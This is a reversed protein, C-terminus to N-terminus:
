NRIWRIIEGTKEDFIILRIKQANIVIEGIAESLIGKYAEDSVALYLQRDPEKNALVTAYLIYQGIAVELDRIASDGIFSKIEVAIKENGKEAGILRQAGLDVFVYRAGARLYLRDHTITWGDNILGRKVTEHFVDKAPM